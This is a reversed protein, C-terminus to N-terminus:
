TTHRRSDALTDKLTQELRYEPAWGLEDRLAGPDGYLDPQEGDRRRAPDSILTVPIKAHPALGELLERVELSRGTCPLYARAPDAEVALIRYARVIDRVDTFDRRTSVNGVEVEVADRGEREARVIQSAVNPLVFRDDQGPGIHNFSRVRIAQVGYNERYQAAALDVAAKSAGYPSAPRFPTSERAPLEGLPVRGYVESSTVVLTRARSDHVRLADLLALSGNMNLDWTGIPDAFSRGVSSYGALHYIVEPKVRGVLEAVTRRDTIDGPHATVAGPRHLETGPFVLAHLEDGGELCHDILHPGAFGTAGTILARVAPLTATAPVALRGRGM